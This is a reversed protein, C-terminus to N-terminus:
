GKLNTGYIETCFNDWCDEDLSTYGYTHDHIHAPLTKSLNFTHIARKIAKEKDKGKFNKSLLQTLNVCAEEFKCNVLHRERNLADTYCEMITNTSLKGQYMLDSLVVEIPLEDHYFLNKFDKYKLGTM